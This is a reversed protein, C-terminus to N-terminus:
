IEENELNKRLELSKQKEKGSGGSVFVFSRANGAEQLNTRVLRPQLQDLPQDWHDKTLLVLRQTGGWM